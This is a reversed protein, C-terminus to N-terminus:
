GVTVCLWCTQCQWPPRIVGKQVWLQLGRMWLQLGLCRQKPCHITGMIDENCCTGADPIIEVFGNVADRSLHSPLSCFCPVTECHFQESLGDPHVPPESPEACPPVFVVVGLHPTQAQM